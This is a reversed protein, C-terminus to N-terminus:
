EFERGSLPGNIVTNSFRISTGGGGAEKMEVLTAPGEPSFTITIAAIVKKFDDRLPTMKLRIEPGPLSEISYERSIGQVDFTIWAIMQRAVITAVPDSGPAFPTRKASGDAWRFGSDGHLVFGERMPDFYEWRLSEPRAFIFHGQSRMPQAFMPIATEQVFDAQVNRLGAAKQRLLELAEAAHASQPPCCCLFFAAALFLRLASLCLFTLSGNNRCM